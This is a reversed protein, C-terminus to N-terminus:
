VRGSTRVVGLVGDSAWDGLLILTVRRGWQGMGALSWLRVGTGRARGADGRM